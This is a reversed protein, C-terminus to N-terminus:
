LGRKRAYAVADYAVAAPDSGYGHEVIDAGVARAHARLQEIAGARWTDAAAFVVSYGKTKFRYGLKALTTTKGHGNPGLFLIKVVEGSSRLRAVEQELDFWEAREFIKLLARRLLERVLKERNGARPVRLQSAERRVYRAVEEAAELAVDCELLKFVTISEIEELEEESLKSTTIRTAIQHLVSRLGELM